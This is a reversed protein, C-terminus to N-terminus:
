QNGSKTNSHILGPNKPQETGEGLLPKTEIVRTEKEKGFKQTSEENVSEGDASIGFEPATETEVSAPLSSLSVHLLLLCFGVRTM